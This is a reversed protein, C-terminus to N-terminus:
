RRPRNHSNSYRQRGWQRGGPRGLAERARRALDEPSEGKPEAPAAPTNEALAVATAAMVQKDGSVKSKEEEIMEKLRKIVFDAFKTPTKGQHKETEELYMHADLLESVIPGALAKDTREIAYWVMNDPRSNALELLQELIELKNGSFEPITISEGRDHDM